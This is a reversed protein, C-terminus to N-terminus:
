QMVQVTEGDLIQQAGSVIIREGEGLGELVAVQNGVIAGLRVVKFRATGSRGSGELVAVSYNNPDQKSRVVSALPIVTLPGSPKEGQLSVSVIMGPKLLNKSNRVSVEVSFVRSKPDTAPSIATVRGAMLPQEAVAEVGVPLEMGLKIDPLASDPIGFVAKVTDIQAMEFAPAGPTALAGIEVVRKLVVGGVPAVIRTDDLNIKAESVVAEAARQNEEAAGIQSRAAEVRAEASDLQAKAGDFDPRTLSKSDYLAGARRFDAVAKVRGAEAEALQSRATQVTKAAAAQQASAQSVRADYDSQRVRALFQGRAVFDGEQVLRGGVRLIEEVYGGVKFAVSVQSDPAIVASYRSALPEPTFTGVPQVAVMIPSRKGVTEKGCGGLILSALAFGIVSARKM